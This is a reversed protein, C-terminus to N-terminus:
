SSDTSQTIAGAGFSFVDAVFARTPILSDATLTVNVSM